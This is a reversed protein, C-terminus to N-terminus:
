DDRHTPHWHLIRREAALVVFTGVIGVAALVVISGWAVDVDVRALATRTQYGLGATSGGYFEGIVAGVLSLPVAIRAAAFTDALAFPVRIRRYVSWTSADVSRALDLLDPDASRLGTLMNTTFPVLVFLAVILIKPLLGFGFWLLFLPAIVVVPTSQIVVIVPWSVREALPSLAMASALAAAATFGLLLGIGAESVTVLTQEAYFGPNDALHALVRSPRPLLLPRVRGIRAYAEWVGLIAVVALAPTTSLWLRRM